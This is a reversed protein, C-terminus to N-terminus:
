RSWTEGELDSCLHLKGRQYANSQFTCHTVWTVSRALELMRKLGDIKEETLDQFILSDLAVLNVFSSMPNLRKAEAETPLDELITTEGCFRGLHEVVEEGIRFTEITGSGLFVISDLYIPPSPSPASLPRRLFSVREDIAQSVIVSIPWTPDKVEADQHRNRRFRSQPACRAM